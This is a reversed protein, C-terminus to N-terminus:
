KLPFRILISDQFPAFQSIEQFRYILIGNKSDALKGIAINEKLTAYDDTKQLKWEQGTWQGLISLPEAKIDKIRNLKGKLSSFTDSKPQYKFLSFKAAPGAGIITFEGDKNKTLKIEVPTLVQFKRQEWLKLYDDYESKSMGMKEHFPYPLGSKVSKRYETFWDPDSDAAVQIKRQYM